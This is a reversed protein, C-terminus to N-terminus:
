DKWPVHLRRWELKGGFVPRATCGCVGVADQRRPSAGKVASLGRLRWLLASPVEARWQRRVLCGGVSRRGTQWHRAEAGSSKDRKVANSLGLRWLQGKLVFSLHLSKSSTCGGFLVGDLTQLEADTMQLGYHRCPRFADGCPPVFRGTSPQTEISRLITAARSLVVGRCTGLDDVSSKTCPRPAHTTGPRFQMTRPVLRAASSACVCWYLATELRWPHPWVRSYLRSGVVVGGALSVEGRLM